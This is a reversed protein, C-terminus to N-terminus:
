TRPRERDSARRHLRALALTPRRLRRRGAGAEAALVRAAHEADRELAGLTTQCAECDTLHDDLAPGERDLWARLRGADPCTTTM